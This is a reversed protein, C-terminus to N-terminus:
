WYFQEENYGNLLFGIKIIVNDEYLNKKNYIMYILALLPLFITYFCFFPLIIYNQWFHYTSGNCKEILFSQIFSNEGIDVCNMIETLSTILPCQFFFLTMVGTLFIKELVPRFVLKKSHKRFIWFLLIIVLFLGPILLMIMTKVYIIISAFTENNLLCDLGYVQHISGGAAKVVGFIESVIDGWDLQLNNIISITQIYNLFIKMAAASVMKRSAFSKNTLNMCSDYNM